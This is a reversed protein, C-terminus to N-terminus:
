GASPRGLRWRAPTVRRRPTARDPGRARAERGIRARLDPDRAAALTTEVLSDVHGMPFLLGSQGHVVVERAGAIDSAVLTRGCAQAELYVHAQGESESTMVVLDALRVLAPVEDHDVWGTFRFRDGLGRRECAAQM